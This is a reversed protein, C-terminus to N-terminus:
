LGRRGLPADGPRVAYAGDSGSMACRRPLMIRRAVAPGSLACCARRLLYCRVRADSLVQAEGEPDLEVDTRCRSFFAPLRLLASMSVSAAVRQAPVVRQDPRLSFFVQKLRPGGPSGRGEYTSAWLQVPDRETRPTYKLVFHVCRGSASVETWTHSNDAGAAPTQSPQQQQQESFSLGALVISLHTPLQCRVRNGQDYPPVVPTPADHPPVQVHEVACSEIKFGLDRDKRIREEPDPRGFCCLERPSHSVLSVVKQVLGNFCCLYISFSKSAVEVPRGHARRAGGVEEWCKDEERWRLVGLKVELEQARLARELPLHLPIRLAVPPDFTTGSPHFRHASGALVVSTKDSSGCVVSQSLAAAAKMDRSLEVTEIQIDHSADLDESTVRCGSPICLCM